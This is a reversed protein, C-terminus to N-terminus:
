CSIKFTRQFYLRSYYNIKPNVNELYIKFNRMKMNKIVKNKIKMKNILIM